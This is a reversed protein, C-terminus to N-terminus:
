IEVSNLEMIAMFIALVVTMVVLALGVIVLPEFMSLLRKIQRRTDEEVHSAAKMLMAGSTGSEEGVRLRSALGKPLFKNGELAASLKLGSKLKHELENFSGRIVPNQIVKGAIRVTKIIDVHNSILIALTRVFKGMEVATHLAGFLPLSLIIQAKIEALREKGLMQRLVLPAVIALVVLTLSGYVVVDSMNMLFVMSGPLDRGMNEFQTVFRPVFVAFMLITVLIAVALVVVPYISSTVIFDRLERSEAMFRRLEELVEPLRGTEEGTEILNAYYGPFLSGYSRILDSFKRGEHLGQRLAQVFERQESNAAGEAIISLARELPIASNLLASLQETMDLVDIKSRGLLRKENQAPDVERLFKVPLMNMHRLKQEAERQNEAEVTVDRAAEGPAIARYLYLAM